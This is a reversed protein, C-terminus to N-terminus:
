DDSAFGADIMMGYASFCVRGLGGAGNSPLRNAAVIFM